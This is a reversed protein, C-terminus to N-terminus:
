GNKKAKRLYFIFFILFLILFIGFLNQAATIIKALDTEM